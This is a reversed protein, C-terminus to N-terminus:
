VRQTEEIIRRSLEKDMNVIPTSYLYPPHSAFEAKLGDEITMYLLAKTRAQLKFSINRILKEDVLELTEQKDIDVSTHALKKDLLWRAIELAQHESSTIIHIAIM